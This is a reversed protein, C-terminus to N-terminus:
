LSVKKFQQLQQLFAGPNEHQVISTGILAGNFGIDYM